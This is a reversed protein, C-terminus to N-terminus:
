AGWARAPIALTLTCPGTPEMVPALRVSSVMFSLELHRSCAPCAALGTMQSGFASERLNLLHADRQGITLAALREPPLESGVFQLLTLARQAPSQSLAREWAGLLTSATLARM